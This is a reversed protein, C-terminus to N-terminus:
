SESPDAQQSSIKENILSLLVSQCAAPLSLGGRRRGGGDEAWLRLEPMDLTSLAAELDRLARADYYVAQTTRAFAEHEVPVVERRRQGPAAHALSRWLNESFLWRGHIKTRV